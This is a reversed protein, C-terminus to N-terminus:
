YDEHIRGLFAFTVRADEAFGPGKEALAVYRARDLYKLLADFQGAREAVRPHGLAELVLDIACM